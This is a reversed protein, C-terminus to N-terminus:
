IEWIGGAVWFWAEVENEKVLLTAVTARDQVAVCHLVSLAKGFSM